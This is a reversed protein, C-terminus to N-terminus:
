LPSSHGHHQYFLQVQGLSLIGETYLDLITEEYDDFTPHLENYDGQTIIDPTIGLRTGLYNRRISPTTTPTKTM